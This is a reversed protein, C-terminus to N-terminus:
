ELVLVEDRAQVAAGDRDNRVEDAHDVALRAHRDCGFRELVALAHLDDPRARRRDHAALLRQGREPRPGEPDVLIETGNFCQVRLQASFRFGCWSYPTPLSCM